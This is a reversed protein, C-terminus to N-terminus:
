NQDKKLDFDLIDMSTKLFQETQIRNCSKIQWQQFNHQNLNNVNFNPTKISQRKIDGYNSNQINSFILSNNGEYVESMKFKSRQVQEIMQKSQCSSKPKKVESDKYNSLEQQSRIDKSDFIISEVLQNNNLNSLTESDFPNKSPSQFVQVQQQEQFIFNDNHFSDSSIQSQAAQGLIMSETQSQEEISIEQDFSQAQLIRQLKFDQSDKSIQINYQPQGLHVTQPQISQALVLYKVKSKPQSCLTRIFQDQTSQFGINQVDVNFTIKRTSRAKKAIQKQEENIFEFNEIRGQHLNMRVFTCIKSFHFQLLKLQKLKDEIISHELEVKPIHVSNKLTLYQHIVSKDKLKTLHIWKDNSIQYYKSYLDDFIYQSTFIPLYPNFKLYDYTQHFQLISQQCLDLLQQTILAAQSPIDQCKVSPSPPPQLSVLSETRSIKLTNQNQDSQRSDFQVNLIPLQGGQFKLKIILFRHITLSGKEDFEYILISPQCQYHFEKNDKRVKYLGPTSSLNEELPLVYNLVSVGKVIHSFSPLHIPYGEQDDITRLDQGCVQLVFGDQIGNPIIVIFKADPTLITTINWDSETIKTLLHNYRVNQLLDELHKEQKASKRQPDYYLIYHEFQNQDLTAFSLYLHNEHIQKIYYEKSYVIDIDITIQEKNELDQLIYLQNDLIQLLAIQNNLKFICSADNSHTTLQQLVDNKYEYLVFQDTYTKIKLLIYDDVISVRKISNQNLIKKTKWQDNHYNCLYLSSNTQILIQEQFSYLGYILECPHSTIQNTQCNHPLDLLIQEIVLPNLILIEREHGIVQFHKYNIALNASSIWNQHLHFIHDIKGSGFVIQSDDVKTVLQFNFPPNALNMVERPDNQIITYQIDGYQNSYDTYLPRGWQTESQRSLGDSFEQQNTFEYANLFGQDDIIIIIPYEDTSSFSEQSKKITHYQDKNVLALGRIGQTNLMEVKNEKNNDYNLYELNWFTLTSLNTGYLICLDGMLQMGFDGNIITDNILDIKLNDIQQNFDKSALNYWIIEACYSIKDQCKSQYGCICLLNNIIYISNIFLNINVNLNFEKLSSKLTKSNKTIYYYHNDAYFGAQIQTDRLIVSNQYSILDILVLQDELCLFLKNIEFNLSLINAYAFAKQLIFNQQNTQFILITKETRVILQNRINHLSVINGHHLTLQQYPFYHSLNEPSFQDFICDYFLISDKQAVLLQDNFIALQSSSYQYNTSHTNNNTYIAESNQNHSNIQNEIQYDIIIQPKAEEHNSKKFRRDIHNQNLSQHCHFCAFKNIKM